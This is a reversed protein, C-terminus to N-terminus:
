HRKKKKLILKNKKDNAWRHCFHPSILYALTFGATFVMQIFSNIKLTFFIIAISIPVPSRSLNFVHSFLLLQFKGLQLCISPSPYPFGDRYLRCHLSILMSLTLNLGEWTILISHGTNRNSRTQLSAWSSAVTWSFHLWHITKEEHYILDKDLVRLSPAGMCGHKALFSQMICYLLTKAIPLSLCHKINILWLLDHPPWRFSLWWICENM